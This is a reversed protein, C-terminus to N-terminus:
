SCARVMPRAAAEGLYNHLAKELCPWSMGYEGDFQSNALDFVALAEKQSLVPLGAQQCLFNVDNVHWLNDVFYGHAKLIERAAAIIRESQM